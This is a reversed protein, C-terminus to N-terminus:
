FRERISDKIIKLPINKAIQTKGIGKILVFRNKEGLFKKDHNQASIVREISIGKIRIPLGANRILGEIRKEESQGILGSRRSIGCAILMGLAVAEGHNLLKYGCATEIAHGATHGFNLITRLGLEEKEDRSVIDAKIKACRSVVYELAAPKCQLIDDLKNELLTVLAPDKIIGYKIVEALGARIQRPSLSKLFSVDSLVLKPQYIAGILNKGSSLDVATKGGIASDVQALLTTPIQIYPIGRKYVSAVFGALDGVVGGGLAVIFVRKKIDYAALDKLVGAATEVSKSKESDTVTKFRTKIAYKTLTAEILKGFKRKILPNTIIYANTGIDLKRVHEGLKGIINCGVIIDYSRKKLRLRIKRM